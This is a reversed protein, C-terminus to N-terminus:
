GSRVIAKVGNIWYQLNDRKSAEFWKAQADLHATKNYVLDKDTVQKPAKGVMVKGYYLYRAYPVGIDSGGYVIVGSGYNTHSKSINQLMGQVFPMYKQTDYYVTADLWKQAKDLTGNIRAPSFNIIVNSM